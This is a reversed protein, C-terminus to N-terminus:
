FPTMVSSFVAFAIIFIVSCLVAVGELYGYLGGIESLLRKEGAASIMGAVFESIGLVLRMAALELVTPLLMIIIVIIGIVGVSGRLMEISAALTGLTSSLTGGAIPVFSSVAFKAGRMAMGDAKSSIITQSLLSATLIMMIFGLATMYWKKISASVTGGASAFVGDFASLLSLSLCICFFPIVTYGCIFECIALIVSLTASSSVATSFSGGMAFLTTSLPLFAAVSSFLTDFYDKLSSLSSLAVTAIASYACLRSILECVRGLGGSLSSSVTYIVSSIIVIGLLLALRPLAEALSEGFASILMKILSQPSSLESAAGEIESVNDSGLGSPLKDIVKNPLSEFFEGYESPVTENEYVEEACVGITSAYISLLMVTLALIIKKMRCLNLYRVRLIM